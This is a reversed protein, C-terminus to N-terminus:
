SGFSLLREADLAEGPPTDIVLKALRLNHGARLMAALAKERAAPDLQGIAYPGLRRRKAFRLASDVAGDEAADRAESSDEESVGAASLAQRVRGSGYGRGLLSAAKGRAFAADDVYGLEAFREAIRQLGPDEDGSWGRERLKRRLYTELKARTTAFRSVYRIALEELRAPDLPTAQRPRRRGHRREVTGESVGQNHWM